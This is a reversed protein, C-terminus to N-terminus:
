KKEKIKMKANVFGNVKSVLQVLSSKYLSTM